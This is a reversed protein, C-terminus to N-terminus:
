ALRVSVHNAHALHEGTLSPDTLHEDIYSRLSRALTHNDTAPATKRNAPLLAAQLLTTTADALM